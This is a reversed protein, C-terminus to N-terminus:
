IQDGRWKKKVWSFPRWESKTGFLISQGFNEVQTKNRQAPLISSFILNEQTQQKTSKIM